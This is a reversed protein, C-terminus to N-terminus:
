ETINEFKVHITYFVWGLPFSKTSIVIQKNKLKHVIENQIGLKSDISLLEWYYNARMHYNLLLHIVKPEIRPFSIPKTLSIIPIKYLKLEDYKIIFDIGHDLKNLLRYETNITQKKSTFDNQTITQKRKRSNFNKERKLLLQKYYVGFAPFIQLIQEDLSM